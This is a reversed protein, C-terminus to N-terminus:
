HLLDKYLGDKALADHLADLTYPDKMDKATKISFFVGKERALELLRKIKGQEDLDKIQKAKEKVEEELEPSLNLEEAEKELKEKTIEEKENEISKKEPEEKKEIYPDETREKDYKKEESDISEEKKPEKEFAQKM